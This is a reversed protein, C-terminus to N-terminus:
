LTTESRLIVYKKGILFGKEQLSTHKKIRINIIKQNDAIQLLFM